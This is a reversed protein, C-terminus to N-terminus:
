TKVEIIKLYPGMHRYITINDNASLRAVRVNISITAQNTNVYHAYIPFLSTSRSGGGSNSTFYQNTGGIYNNNIYFRSAYSDGHYGSIYYPVFYELFILSSSSVPTYNISNVFINTWSTGSYTNDSSGLNNSEKYYIKMNLVSGSASGRISGTATINGNVELKQSPNNTGIGVNGNARMTLTDVTNRASGTWYNSKFTIKLGQSQEHENYIQYFDGRDSERSFRLADTNTTLELLSNPSSNGIGVNGEFTVQSSGTQTIAQNTTLAAGTVDLGNTANVNSNVVLLDTNDEGITLDNIKNVLKDATIDAYNEKSNM